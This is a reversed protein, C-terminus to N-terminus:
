RGTVNCNFLYTLGTSPTGIFTGVLTTSTTHVGVLAITGTGTPDMSCDAGPATASVVGWAGDKFTVTFTPNAAIGTGSPTITFGFSGDVGTAASKAGTSGWAAGLAIASDAGSYATGFVSFRSTRVSQGTFVLEANGAPNTVQLLQGNIATSRGNLSHFNIAQSVSNAGGSYPSIDLCNGRNVGNDTSGVACSFGATFVGGSPKSVNFAPMAGASSANFAPQATMNGTVQVGFGTTGANAVWIDFEGGELRSAVGTGPWGDSAGGNVGWCGGGAVLSRCQGYVGISDAVTGGSSSQSTNAYGGVGFVGLATTGSPASACGSIAETAYQSQITHFETSPSCGNLQSTFYENQQTNTYVGTQQLSFLGTNINTGATLGSFAGGTGGAQTSGIITVVVTGSVFSSVRARINTYGGITFQTTGASTSSAVSAAVWTVGYDGSVEFQVTASFTGGLTITSYITNPYFRLSVCNTSLCSASAATLNGAASNTQAPLSFPLFLLLLLLRKMPGPVKASIRSSNTSPRKLTLCAIAKGTTSTLATLRSDNQSM